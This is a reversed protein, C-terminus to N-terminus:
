RQNMKILLPRVVSALGKYADTLILAAIDEEDNDLVNANDESSGMRANPPDPASMIPVVM